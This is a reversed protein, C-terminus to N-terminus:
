AALRYNDTNTADVVINSSMATPVCWGVLDSSSVNGLNLLEIAIVRLVFEANEDIPTEGREWRGITQADKKVKNALEAQTYGMETRIFKLEEGSIGHAQTVIGHAIIKHLKNVNPINIVEEGHDDTIPNMGELYVNNLGSETYHYSTM